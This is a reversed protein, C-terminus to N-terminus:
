CWRITKLVAYNISRTEFDSTKATSPSISNASDFSIGMYDVFSINSPVFYSILDANSLAGSSYNGSSPYGLNQMSVAGKIRQGADLQKTGVHDGTTGDGRTTRSVVNPDVGAGHNWQREFMGRGNRLKSRGNSGTGFKGHLFSNLRTYGAPLEIGNLELEGTPPTETADYTLVEGIKGQIICPLTEIAYNGRNGYVKYVEITNSPTSSEFLVTLETAVASVAIQLTIEEIGGTNQLAASQSTVGDTIRVTANAGKVMAKLTVTKGQLLKKWNVFEHLAQRLSRTGAGDSSTQFKCCESVTDYGIEGDTGSDTFVWGDPHKYSYWSEITSRQNSFYRFDYNYVLNQQESAEIKALLTNVMGADNNLAAALENLTDLASPAGGILAAITADTYAKSAKQSAIKLDSNGSLTVDTDISAGGLKDIEDKLYNDNAYLRNFENNFTSGRALTGTASDRGDKYETIKIGNFEAM